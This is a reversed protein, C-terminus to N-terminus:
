LVILVSQTISMSTLTTLLWAPVAIGVIYTVLSIAAAYASTYWQSSPTVCNSADSSSSSSKAVSQQQLTSNQLLVTTAAIRNCLLIVPPIYTYGVHYKYVYFIAHLLYSWSSLLLALLSQHFTVHSLSRMSALYIISSVALQVVATALLLLPLHTSSDLYATSSHPLYTTIETTSPVVALWQYHSSSQSRQYQVWVNCLIYLPLLGCLLRRVIRQQVEQKTNVLWHRYISLRCLNLDIVKLQLEYESYRDIPLHCHSCTSLKLVQTVGYIEYPQHYHPHYTSCQICTQPM